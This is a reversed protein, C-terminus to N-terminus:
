EFGAPVTNLKSGASKGISTLLLVGVISILFLIIAYEFLSVGSKRKSRKILPQKM